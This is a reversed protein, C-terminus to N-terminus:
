ATVRPRHMSPPKSRQSSKGPLIFRKGTINSILRVLDPLDAEELNFTVLSRPSTPEFDIGTEFETIGQSTGAEDSAAPPQGKAPQKGRKGRRRGAKGLRPAAAQGAAPRLQVQPSGPQQQQEQAHGIGLGVLMLSAAASLIPMATRLRM